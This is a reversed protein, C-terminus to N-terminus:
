LGIEEDSRVGLRGEVMKIVLCIVMSFGCVSAMLIAGDQYTLYELLTGGVMAGAYCACSSGMMWISFISISNKGTCVGKIKTQLDTMARLTPVTIIPDGMGSLLVAPYAIYPVINYLFPISPTPFMLLLGLGVMGAGIAMQIYTNIIGSQSILGSLSSGIANGASVTVLVTGGVTLPINFKEYLYPITSIQLFAYVCNILMCACVPVIIWNTVTQQSTEEDDAVDDENANNGVSAETLSISPCPPLITAFMIASFVMWSSSFMFPVKYGYREYLVVGVYEGVGHGSFYGMQMLGNMMDLKNPFLTKMIDLFAINKPFAELGWIVRAAISVVVFATNDDIYDALGSVAVSVAQLGVMIVITWKPTIKETLAEGMSRCLFSALYGFFISGEVFGYVKGSIGRKGFSIALFGYRVSAAVSGIHGGLVIVFAALIKRCLSMNVIGSAMVLQFLNM